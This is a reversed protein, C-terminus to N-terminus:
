LYFFCCQQLVKIYQCIYLVNIQFHLSATHRSTIVTDVFLSFINFTLNPKVAVEKGGTYLFMRCNYKSYM